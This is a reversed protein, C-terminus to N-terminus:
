SGLVALIAAVEDPALGDLRFFYKDFFPHRRMLHLEANDDGAVPIHRVYGDDTSAREVARKVDSVRAAWVSGDKLVFVWVTATTATLGSPTGARPNGVEVAVNGSRAEYVDYKVEVDVTKDHAPVAVRYDFRSLAKRSRASNRRAQLGSQEAVAAFRGEGEAGTRIDSRFGRRPRPM